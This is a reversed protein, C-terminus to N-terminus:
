DVFCGLETLCFLVRPVSSAPILATIYLRYLMGTVYSLVFSKPCQWRPHSCSCRKLRCNSSFTFLQVSLIILTAANADSSCCAICLRISAHKFMSGLGNSDYNTFLGVRASFSRYLSQKCLNRKCHSCCDFM